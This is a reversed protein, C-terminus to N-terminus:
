RASGSNTEGRNCKVFTLWTHESLPESEDATALDDKKMQRYLMARARYGNPPTPDLEIFKTFDALAQEGRNLNVYAIGRNLDANAQHVNNGVIMPIYKDYDAISKEHENVKRYV